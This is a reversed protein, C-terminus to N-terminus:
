LPHVGEVALMDVLRILPLGLLTNPDSGDFEELLAIGLGESRLSGGCDYPQDADIYNEIMPRTLTRFRVRYPLM